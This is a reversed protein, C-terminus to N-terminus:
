RNAVRESAKRIAILERLMLGLAISLIGLGFSLAGLIQHIASAAEVYAFIGGIIQLVGLAIIIPGM